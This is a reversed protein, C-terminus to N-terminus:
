DDDEESILQLMGGDILKQFHEKNIIVQGEDNLKILDDPLGLEELKDKLGKM